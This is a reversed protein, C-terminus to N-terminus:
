KQKGKFLSNQFGESLLSVFFNSANILLSENSKKLVFLTKFKLTSIFLNKFPFNQPDENSSNLYYVGKLLNKFIDILSSIDSSFSNLSSKLFWWSDFLGLSSNTSFLNSASILLYSQYPDKEKM